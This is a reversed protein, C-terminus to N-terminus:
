NAGSAVQRHIFYGLTAGAVMGLIAGAPGWIAAGMLGVGIAGSITSVPQHSTDQPHEAHVEAQVREKASAAHLREQVAM